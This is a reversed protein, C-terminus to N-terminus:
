KQCANSTHNQYRLSPALVQALPPCPFTLLPHLRPMPAAAAAAPLTLPPAAAAAAVPANAAAPDPPPHASNSTATAATSAAATASARADVEVLIVIRGRAPARHPCLQVLPEGLLYPSPSVSDIMRSAHRAEVV